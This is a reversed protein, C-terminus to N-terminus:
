RPVRPSLTQTGFRARLACGDTPPAFSRGPPKVSSAALPSAHQRPRVVLTPRFALIPLRRVCLASVACGLRVRCRPRRGIVIPTPASLPRLARRWVRGSPACSVSSTRPLVPISMTAVGPVGSGSRRPCWPGVSHLRGWFSRSSRRLPWWRWPYECRSACGCPASSSPSRGHSTSVKTAGACSPALQPRRAGAM